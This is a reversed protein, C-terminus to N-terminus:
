RIKRSMVTIQRALACWAERSFEGATANLCNASAAALAQRFAEEPAMGGAFLAATVASATDGAGLPSVVDIRPLTYTWLTEGDSLAAKGAGDTIAFIRGPYKEGAFRHATEADSCGTIRLFEEKNVKLIIKGPLELVPLAGTVADILVPLGHKVALAAAKRCLDPDSGDPLSGTVAFLDARPLSADLGTLLEREEDATVAQSVGILETM